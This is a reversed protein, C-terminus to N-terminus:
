FMTLAKASEIIFWASLAGIAILLLGKALKRRRMQSEHRDVHRARYCGTESIFSIFLSNRIPTTVIRSNDITGFRVLPRHFWNKFVRIV